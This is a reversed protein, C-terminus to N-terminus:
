LYFSKENKDLAIRKLFSCIYASAHQIYDLAPLVYYTSSSYGGGVENVFMSYYGGEEIPAGLRVEFVNGEFGVVKSTASCIRGHVARFLQGMLFEELTSPAQMYGVFGTSKLSAYNIMINKNYM